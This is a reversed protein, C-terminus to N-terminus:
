LDLNPHTTQVILNPHPTTFRKVGYWLLEFSTFIDKTFFFFNLLNKFIFSLWLFCIKVFFISALPYNATAARISWIYSLFLFGIVTVGSHVLEVSFLYFFVGCCDFHTNEIIRPCRCLRFAVCAPFNCSSYYKVSFFFDSFVNVSINEVSQLNKLICRPNTFGM